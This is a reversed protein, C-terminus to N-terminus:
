LACLREGWPSRPNFHLTLADAGYCIITAGGVPLTSQFRQYVTLLLSYMRREGWPSRPNFHFTDIVNILAEVTAGGVPLTSQFELAARTAEATPTAGGM